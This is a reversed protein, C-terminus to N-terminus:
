WEIRKYIALGLSVVVLWFGGYGLLGSIGNSVYISGGVMLILLSFIAIGFGALMSFLLKEKNM